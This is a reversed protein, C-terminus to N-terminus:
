KKTLMVPEKCKENGSADIEVEEKLISAGTAPDEPSNNGYDKMQLKNIIPKKSLDDSQM